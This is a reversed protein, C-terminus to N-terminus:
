AAEETFQLAAAVRALVARAETDAQHSDLMARRVSPAESRAGAVLENAWAAVVGPLATRTAELDRGELAARGVAYGVLAPTVARAVFEAHGDYANARPKELLQAERRAARHLADALAPVATEHIAARARAPATDDEGDEEPDDTPAAPAPAAPTPAANPAAGTPTEQYEDGGDRPNLNELERIENPSLWGNTKAIQYAQYRSLTDGRLLADLVFQTFLTPQRGPICKRDLEQEWRVLWPRITNTVYDIGQQEINSWTARSLDRLVHPPVNFLRAIEGLQFQRTQLFQADDPNITTATFSLGDELIAVRQANSLGQHMQEWSTRLRKLAEESMVKPTTIVGGPRSGNAFFSGGFSEAAMTLGIANRALRIPSYGQLGDFGFGPIHLVRDAALAIREDRVDILYVKVGDRREVTVRDPTIPWLAVVEGRGSFQIEAYGNGWGVAHGTVTERFQQSSMEPNAEDHLVRYLPLSDEVRKGREQKRYLKLPLSGVTEAIARIAALVATAGMATRENVAVGAVGPGAGLAAYLWQDPNSLPTSPNEPSARREFLRHLLGSM